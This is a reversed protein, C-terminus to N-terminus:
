QLLEIAKELQPDRGAAIDEPTFDVFYDPQKGVWTFGLDINLCVRVSGGGPLYVQHGNGTGGSTPLGVLYGRKNYQFLDSFDEAASGTRPSILVVVPCSFKYKEKPKLPFGGRRLAIYGYGRFEKLPIRVPHYGQTYGQATKNILHSFIRDGYTSNGGTNERVDFILGKAQGTKKNKILDLFQQYIDGQYFRKINFYWINDELIKLEVWKKPAASRKRKLKYSDRVLEVSYTEGEFKRFKARVKSDRKGYLLFRSFQQMKFSRSKFYYYCVFPFQNQNKKIYDQVPIGDISILIDGPKIIKEFEKKYVKKVIFLNSGFLFEIGCGSHKQWIDNPFQINTHNEGVKGVIESLIEYFEQKTQSAFIRPLYDAVHQNWDIIPAFHLSANEHYMHNSMILLAKLKEEQTNGWKHRKQYRKKSFDKFRNKRWENRNQFQYIFGYDFEMIKDLYNLFGTEDAAQYNIWALEKYVYKLNFRNKLRNELFAERKGAFVSLADKVKKKFKKGQIEGTVKYIYQYVNLLFFYKNEM